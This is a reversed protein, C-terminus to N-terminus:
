GRAGKIATRSKTMGWGALASHDVCFFTGVL